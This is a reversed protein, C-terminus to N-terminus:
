PIRIEAFVGKHDSIIEDLVKFQLFELEKSIFIWDLRTKGSPYTWTTEDEQKPRFTKLRLREAMRRLTNEKSTWSCNFDGMVILPHDKNRILEIMEDIQQKRVSKRSYDLHASVLTIAKGTKSRIDALVFGKTLTPPSPHFAHSRCNMLPQHSILATGFIIGKIVAHGGHVYYPFAGQEMILEVQNRGGSWWASIDTEQLAAVDITNTNLSKGILELNKQLTATKQFIQNIGDGRGHAINLTMVRLTSASASTQQQIAQDEICNHLVPVDGNSIFIWLCALIITLLGLSIARLGFYKIQSHKAFM